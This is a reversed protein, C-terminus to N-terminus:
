CLRFKVASGLRKMGLLVFLGEIVAIADFFEPWKLWPAGNTDMWRLIIM